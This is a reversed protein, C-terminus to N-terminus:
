SLEKRPLCSAPNLVFSEATNRRDTLKETGLYEFFEKILNVAMNLCFNIGHGVMGIFIDALGNEHIKNM